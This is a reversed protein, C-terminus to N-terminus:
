AKRVKVKVHSYWGSSIDWMGAGYFFLGNVTPDGVRSAHHTFSVTDPRIGNRTRLVTRQVLTEGTFPHHSEIVVRDGDELGRRKAEAANMVLPNDPTLEELLPLEISRTNKLEIRKHDMLYLDYERPSREIPQETWTPYATYREWLDAPMGADKMAEGIKPFVELYFHGRVGKFPRPGARQFLDAAPVPKSVVGVEKLEDIGLDLKSRSWADVIQEPTPKRDLALLNAETVRLRQNLRAVFGNPGDLRGMRACLDTLIEIESRSEGLAEMVPFRVSDGATYLTSAAMPGELKDLTGCPLVVDASYDPTASLYPAIYAVFGFRAWAQRAREVPRSSLLPNLYSVLVAMDAPDTTLGYREPDNVTEPFMMYGSSGLPFWSSNALDWRRPKAGAAALWRAQQAAPDVVAKSALHASGAADLAGVIMFALLITRSAQLGSHFKVSTGHMGFAVPRYPVEIGDVVTTAGISAAEGFDLAVRRIQEAPLGCVTAAWEPTYPAVHDKLVQLAPRVQAGDLEFSGLLAPRTASSLPAPGGAQEDWAQEVGDRRVITGDDAVLAGANTSGRLFPADVYGRDLLVHVVALWLAMDTGPRVPVWEDALHAVSRANPDIAVVKMGRAKADVVERPFTIQCLQPGGAQTLNWYCILYKCRRFDPTAFTRVGWSALIADEVAGGCDMGRRGYTTFGTADVFAQSYIAAVKDRGIIWASLLPDKAQAAAMRDAVIGLAEDWSAQRWTGPVGKGNTRVLPRTLRNADYLTSIQAQGKPCLAGLNRPHDPHGDLKVVRGDLRRAIMGCEQKGIWCTTNVFDEVAPARTAASARILTEPAGFLFRRAVLAGGGVAASGQLFRRRSILPM